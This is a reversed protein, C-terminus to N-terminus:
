CSEVLCSGEGERLKGSCTVHVIRKHGLTNSVFAEKRPGKCMVVLERQM